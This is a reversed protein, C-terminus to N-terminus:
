DDASQPELEVGFARIKQARLESKGAIRHLAGLSADKVVDSGPAGSRGLSLIIEISSRLDSGRLAEFMREFVDISQKAMLAVDADDWGHREGMSRLVELPDRTDVYMARRAVLARRFVDDLEGVNFPRNVLNFFDPGKEDHAAMYSAIVNDAQDSRGFRRLLRIANNINLLSIAKAESVASDHLADLFHEDDTALSGHYLEEWARTFMDARPRERLLQQNRDAATLLADDSFFGNSVGDIVLLDFEDAVHFPYDQIIANYCATTADIAEHVARIAMLNKNYNRIFELPAATIPQHVSWSALVLTAIAQDVIADDYKILLDVLRVALRETKKILRINTIGLEIFCSKLVNTARHDETLAIGVAEPATLNFTVVIDAVKEFQREFEDKEDHEQDNLLLVVKCRREEKLYSALGLVDRATLGAGARELDDICVLQNRVMFFASKFLVDSVDKRYFVTSLLDILPRLKRATNRNKLLETFTEADPHRGINDGTVTNEFLAFRLTDLTNLGFLSVYSYRASKLLSANKAGQLFTRWGYTKGVGWRGKICMVEPTDTSLFRLIEAKILELTLQPSGLRFGHAV